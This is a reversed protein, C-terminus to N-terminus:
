MQVVALWQSARGGVGGGGALDEEAVGRVPLRRGEGAAARGPREARLEGRGGRHAVHAGRVRDVQAGGVFPVRKRPALDALLRAVAPARTARAFVERAANAPAPRRGAPRCAPVVAGATMTDTTRAAPAGTM